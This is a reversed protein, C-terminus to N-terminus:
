RFKKNILIYKYSLLISAMLVLYTTNNTTFISGTSKIPFTELIITIISTLLILNEINNIRLLRFNKYIFLFLLTGIILISILGIIGTDILIELYYNHPHTSCLRNERHILLKRCKYRFSKIGSGLIKNNKWIDTATFFIKLHADVEYQMVWFFEFDDVIATGRKWKPPYLFGRFESGEPWKKKPYNELNIDIEGSEIFKEEDLNEVSKNIVKRDIPFLKGALGVPASLIFKVNDRFSIYKNKIESDFFGIFGFIIFLSLFGVSLLLRLKKSFLIFFVLGLLFLIVPMRNGSLLIGVGLICIALITLIFGIKKSNRFIFISFIISFFSFNKIFGGAILENGFVGSNYVGFSKFGITNFGFIYQYIIDLSILIPLISAMFFFYKYQLIDFKSLLYVIFLLLFFRFFFISKILKTLEYSQYEDIYIAKSFSLVTSLFVISFFLFIAKLPLGFNESLIKSRLKFIGLSCFLVLNINTTLNGFVLSLPFLGFTLNILFTQDISNKKIQTM